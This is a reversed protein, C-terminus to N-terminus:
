RLVLLSDTREGSLRRVGVGVCYEMLTLPSDLGGENSFVGSTHM